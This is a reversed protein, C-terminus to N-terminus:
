FIPLLAVIRKRLVRFFDNQQSSRDSRNKVFERNRMTQPASAMPDTPRVERDQEDKALTSRCWHNEDAILARAREVIPRTLPKSM